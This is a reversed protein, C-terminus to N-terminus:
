TIEYICFLAACFPLDSSHVSKKRSRLSVWFILLKQYFFVLCNGAPITRRVGWRPVHCDKKTKGAFAQLISKADGESCQISRWNNGSYLIIEICHIVIVGSTGITSLREVVFSPPFFRFFKNSWNRFLFNLVSHTTEMKTWKTGTKSRMKIKGSYLIIEIYYIAIVGSTRITSIRKM